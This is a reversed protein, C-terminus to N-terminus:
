VWVVSKSVKKVLYGLWNSANGVWTLADTLGVLETKLANVDASLKARDSDTDLRGGIESITKELASKKQYGAERLAELKKQPTYIDSLFKNATAVDKINHKYQYGFVADVARHTSSIENGFPNGSGSLTQGTAALKQLSERIREWGRQIDENNELSCEFTEKVLKKTEAVQINKDTEAKVDELRKEMSTRQATQFKKINKDIGNLYATVNGTTVQPDNITGVAKKAQKVEEELAKGESELNRRFVTNFINKFMRVIYDWAKKLGDKVQGLFSENGMVTSLNVSGSAGLCFHLYRQSSTLSETGQITDIMGQFANEVHEPDPLGFSDEIDDYINM